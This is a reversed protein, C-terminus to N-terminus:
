YFIQQYTSYAWYGFISSLIVPVSAWMVMIPVESPRALYFATIVGLLELLIAIGYFVVGVTAYTKVTNAEMTGALTM